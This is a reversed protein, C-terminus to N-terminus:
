TESAVLYTRLGGQSMAEYLRYAEATASQPYLAYLTPGSGSLHVNPAGAEFMRQRVGDLGPFVQFAAREFSNYLPMATVDGGRRLVEVLRRTASGDSMDAPTLSAYLQRTKGPLSYPQSVLVARFQPSPVLPTVQEGRGEVLATPGAFFFPVDSGLTSGLRALEEHPLDLGWLRSVGLLTTAADSSGGGLGAATPIRKHLTISVGGSVGYTQRLLHAARLVLNGEGEALMSPDDSLLRIDQALSFILTDHLDVLQMVSVLDHYGDGRKGTVELGLNIKAHAALELMAGAQM